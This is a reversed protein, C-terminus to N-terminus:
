AMRTNESYYPTDRDKQWKNRRPHGGAFEKKELAREKLVTDEGRGCIKGRWFLQCCNSGEDL